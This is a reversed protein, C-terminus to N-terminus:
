AEEEDYELELAKVNEIANGAIGKISGYMDTTNAIVTDIYKQQRKWSSMTSRKQKDLEEQILMFGDVISKLQMSFENSTLYGYLLSMKDTRNEQTSISKQVMILSERLLFTSGKFESLSCVWIGDVFGMSKMGAPMAQTVLVGIDANIRLMDQKLKTIWDNFLYYLFGKMDTKIEAVKELQNIRYSQLFLVTILSTDIFQGLKM